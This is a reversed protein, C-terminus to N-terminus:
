VASRSGDGPPQMGDVRPAGGHGTRCDHGRDRRDAQIGEPRHGRRLAAPHSRRGIPRLSFWGTKAMSDILANNFRDSRSGGITRLTDPEAEDLVIEVPKPRAAAMSDSKKAMDMEMGPTTTASGSTCTGILQPRLPPWLKRLIRIRAHSLVCLDRKGLTHFNVRARIDPNEPDSQM